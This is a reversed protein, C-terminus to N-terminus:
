SKIQLDCAFVFAHQILLPNLHYLHLLIAEPPLLAHTTHNTGHMDDRIKAVLQKLENLPAEMVDDAQALRKESAARSSFPDPMGRALAVLLDNHISGSSETMTHKGEMDGAIEGETNSVAKFAGVEVSEPTNESWAVVVREISQTDGDGVASLSAVELKGDQRLKERRLIRSVMRAGIETLADDQIKSNTVHKAQSTMFGSVKAGVAAEWISEAVNLANSSVGGTSSSSPVHLGSAGGATGLGGGM